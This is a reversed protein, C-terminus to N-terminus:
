RRLVRASPASNIPGGRPRKKNRSGWGCPCPNKVVTSWVTVSHPYSPGVPLFRAFGPTHGAGVQRCSGMSGPSLHYVAVLACRSAVVAAMLCRHPLRNAWSVPPQYVSGTIGSGLLGSGKNPICPYPDRNAGQLESPRILKTSLLRVRINASDGFMFARPQARM